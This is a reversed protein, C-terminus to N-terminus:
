IWFNTHDVLSSLDGIKHYYSTKLFYIAINNHKPVILIKWLCYINPMTFLINFPVGLVQYLIGLHIVTSSSSFFTVMSECSIVHLIDAAVLILREETWLINYLSYNYGKWKVGSCYKNRSGKILNRNQPCKSLLSLLSGINKFLKKNVYSTVNVERPTYLQRFLWEHAVSFGCYGFSFLKRAYNEVLTQTPIILFKM